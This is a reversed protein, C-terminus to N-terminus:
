LAGQRAPSAASKPRRTDAEPPAGFTVPITADAASADAEVQMGPDSGLLGKLFRTVARIRPVSRLDAHVNLWLERTTGTQPLVAVLDDRGAVAFMPLLVIGAGAAAANMQAIMSSSRFSVKPHRVVDDLWRVCDVQILDDIYTVFAHDCIADRSAPVGMRALYAPAAYLGLAFRGLRESVLSTGGPRFFSLFLDAERRNVCVTQPSTVLEILLGPHQASLAAPLRSALYLSAIGEMTALRVRGKPGHEDSQIEDGLGIIASEVREAHQLLRGGEESLRLGTALREFLSLGLVAELNAIRRSVTSQDVKLSRAAAGFSRDRSARLFVKLDHWDLNDFGPM